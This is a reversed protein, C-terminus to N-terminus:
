NDKPFTITIATGKDTESEFNISANHIKAAHKVISLGLGTGGVEKSHSKDVRYFREFIREQHELPVGIGTDKVILVVDNANNNVSINVKGNEINYKIANDCLNYIIGKLLQPIGKIVASEGDVYINVKSKNARDTLSSAVEKALLYLDVDIKAMDTAGEDLHSLEIIDEVLQVMRIAENHIKTSFAVYDEPKVMNNSMLESYGAISHLPTKLEHSVNATFEKRMQEVKEKETVDFFLLAIGIIKDRSRVPSADLQYTGITFDIIKEAKIGKQAKEIVDKISLNRCVSLIDKGICDESIQFLNEASKNISIIEGHSNLLVIGENMSKIVAELEDKKMQLKKSQAKLQEQQSNIRRLLPSFEDYGENELPNDLDLSNVPTIISKTLKKALLISLILVAILILLIPKLMDLLLNLITRQSISLRLVSGDDLKQAYYLFEEMLTSSYRKSQGSGTEFASEIEEREIHNDMKTEDNHSDYLVLGDKSILTIRYKNTDLNDFYVKGSLKYGNAALDTEIKLQEMQSNPFNKYVVGTLLLVTAFMVTFAVACMSRFIRKTM